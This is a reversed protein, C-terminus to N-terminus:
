SNNVASLRCTVFRKVFAQFKSLDTGLLPFRVLSISSSM